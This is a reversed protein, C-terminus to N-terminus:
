LSELGRRLAELFEHVRYNDYVLLGFTLMAFGASVAASVAAVIVFGSPKAQAPQRPVAQRANEAQYMM